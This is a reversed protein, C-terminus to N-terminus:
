VGITYRTVEVLALINMQAAIPYWDGDVSDCTVM